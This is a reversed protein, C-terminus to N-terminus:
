ALLKRKAVGALSLMGTGFLMLSSPEPVPSSVPVVDVVMMSQGKGGANLYFADFYNVDRYNALMQSQLTQMESNLSFQDNRPATFNWILEQLDTDLTSNGDFEMGYYAEEELTKNGEVPQVTVKYTAPTTIEDNFDDCFAEVSGISTFGQSLNVQTLGVYFAGNNEGSAYPEVTATVSKGDFNSLKVGDAYLPLTLVTAFGFVM